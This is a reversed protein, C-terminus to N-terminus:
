DPQRTIRGLTEPRTAAAFRKHPALPGGREERHYLSRELACTECLLDGPSALRRCGENGCFQELTQNRNM